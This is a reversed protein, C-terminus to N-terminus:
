NETIVVSDAKTFTDTEQLNKVGETTITCNALTITKPDEGDGAKDTKLATKNGYFYLNGDQIDISNDAKIGNKANYFYVTVTKEEDEEIIFENCNVASGDKTGQIYYKGSGKFEVEDGKIGHCLSDIIYCTGSGGFKLKKDALVAGTKEVPGGTTIIYNETEKKASIETKKNCVIAPADENELYANKLNIVLEKVNNVIQGKFYGSITIEMDEDKNEATATNFTIVGDEKTYLVSDETTINTKKIKIEDTYNAKAKEYDMGYSVPPQNQPDKGSDDKTPDKEGCSAFSLALTMLLCISLTKTLKM